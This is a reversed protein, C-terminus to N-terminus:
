QIGQPGKEVWDDWMKSQCYFLVYASGSVVDSESVKRVHSDDYCYWKNDRVSRAYATYHGFGMEGMHNSVGILNYTPPNKKDCEGLMYEELKLNELPFEIKTKVKKRSSFMYRQTGFRKLHITLIPPLKWLDFKKTAQQHSKCRPCYWADEEELEEELLFQEICKGITNLNGGSSATGQKKVSGQSLLIKMAKTYAAASSENFEAVIRTEDEQYKSVDVLNRDQDELETYKKSTDRVTALDFQINGHQFEPDYGRASHFKPFIHKDILARIDKYWVKDTKMRILVPISCLNAKDFEQKKNGFTIGMGSKKKAEHQFYVITIQKNNSKQDIEPIAYCCLATTGNRDIATPLKELPVKDVKNYIKDIQGGNISVLNLHDDSLLDQLNLDDTDSMDESAGGNMSTEKKHQRDKRIEEKYFTNLQKKLNAIISSGAVGKKSIADPGLDSVKVHFEKVWNGGTFKRATDEIDAVFIVSIYAEPDELLSKGSKASGFVRSGTLKSLGSMVSSGSTNLPLTLYCFPDFTVSIKECTPCKVTSKFQGHFNDVIMSDNRLQHNQWSEASVIKDPRGNADKLEVYPKKKIRNLDEHLGDLLFAIFEHSDQQQYGSFRPCFQALTKKFTRPAVSNHQGSWVQRLLHAYEEALRGQCGLPNDENLDHKYSGNLFFESIVPVNSMCQLGSAM